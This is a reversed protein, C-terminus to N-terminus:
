VCSCLCAVAAVFCPTYCCTRTVLTSSNKDARIHITKIYNKNDM